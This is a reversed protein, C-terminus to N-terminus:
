VFASLQPCFSNADDVEEVGLVVFNCCINCFAGCNLFIILSCSGNMSVIYGEQM